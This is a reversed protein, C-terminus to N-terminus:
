SSRGCAGVGGPGRARGAVRGVERARLSQRRPAVSSCTGISMFLVRTRGRRDALAGWVFGGLILGANQLNLLLGATSVIAGAGVHLDAFSKTRVAGFLIIDFLDVAYGFASVLVAASLLGVATATGGETQPADTAARVL